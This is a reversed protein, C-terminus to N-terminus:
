EAAELTMDANRDAIKQLQRLVYKKNGPFEWENENLAERKGRSLREALVVDGHERLEEIREKFKPAAGQVRSLRNEP